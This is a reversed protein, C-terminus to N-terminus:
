LGLLNRVGLGGIVGVATVAERWNIKTQGLVRDVFVIPVEGFRARRRKLLWLIEELYSYGRSRIQDVDLQKLTDCRYCRFAGSCDKVPLGLLLRAYTNVLRSMLRRHFPWGEIGGGPVYRSGIVVDVTQTTSAICARMAPLYKPDHSFDADMTLVLDYGQDIAERFGALTATGLGLKGPRHLCRLRQEQQAHQDCWDGTGDPSNDDIVLVDVDPAVALIQEVLRALNEIENYTAVVVLTRPQANM